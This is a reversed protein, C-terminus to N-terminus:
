TLWRWVVRVMIPSTLNLAACADPNLDIGAGNTIHREWLMRDKLIAITSNRDGISVEVPKHKAADISGWREIMDDPPLACSSGTGQSVDDDWCGIGNDGM